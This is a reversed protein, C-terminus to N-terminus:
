NQQSVMLVLALKQALKDILSKVTSNDVNTFKFDHTYNLTLYKRHNHSKPTVIDAALKPGIHM